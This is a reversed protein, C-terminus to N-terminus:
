PQPICSATATVPNCTGSGTCVMNSGCSSRCDTVCDFGGAGDSCCKTFCCQGNGPLPGGGDDGGLAITTGVTLTAAVVALQCLGGIRKKMVTMM